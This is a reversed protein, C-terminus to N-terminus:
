AVLLILFASAHAMVNGQQVPKYSENGYYKNRQNRQCATSNMFVWASCVPALWLLGGAVLRMARLIDFPRIRKGAGRAAMTVAEMGSFVEVYDLDRPTSTWQPDSLVADITLGFVVLTASLQETHRAQHPFASHQVSLIPPHTGSQGSAPM